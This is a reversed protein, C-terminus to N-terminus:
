GPLPLPIDDFVQSLVTLSRNLNERNFVELSVCGAYGKLLDMVQRRQVKDLHELGAHDRAGPGDGAVGHLHIMALRDEFMRVSHTLDFGHKLHHGIDLCVSLDHAAVLPTLCAPAYDLTEVSLNRPSAIRPLLRNLGDVAREQWASLDDPKERDTAMELHLTHTSPDLPACLEVVRAIVDAAKQREAALDHTLSVDTPLHINYFVGLDRSLVALEAIQRGSPLVGAPQSEFILLEIEDFFRGIKQVNPLIHDPYIFSTTGLRFRRQM